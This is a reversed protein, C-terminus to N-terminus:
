EELPYDNGINCNAHLFERFWDDEWTDIPDDNVAEMFEPDLLTKEVALKLQATLYTEPISTGNLDKYDDAYGRFNSNYNTELTKRLSDLTAVFKQEDSHTTSTM